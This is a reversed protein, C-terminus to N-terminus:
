LRDHVHAASMAECDARNQLFVRLHFANKKVQFVNNRSSLFTNALQTKLAATACGVAVKELGHRFTAVHIEHLVDQVVPSVLAGGGDQAIAPTGQFAIGFALTRAFNYKEFEHHRWPILRM